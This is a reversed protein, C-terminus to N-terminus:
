PTSYTSIHFVAICPIYWASRVPMIPSYTSPMMSVIGMMRNEVTMGKKQCKSTELQRNMRKVFVNM